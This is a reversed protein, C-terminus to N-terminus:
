RSVQMYSGKGRGFAHGISSGPTMANYFNRGSMLTTKKGTFHQIIFVSCEKNRGCKGKGDVLQYSSFYDFLSDIPHFQRIKDEKEIDLVNGEATLKVGVLGLM